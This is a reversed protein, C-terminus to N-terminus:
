KIKIKTKEECTCVHVCGERERGGERGGREREREGEANLLWFCLVSHLGLGM